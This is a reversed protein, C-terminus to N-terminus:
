AVREARELYEPGLADLLLQSLLREPQARVWGPEIVPVFARTRVSAYWHVVRTEALLVAALLTRTDARFWHESIEPGLPYFTSPPYIICDDAATDALVNQLLATGLAYRRLLAGEAFTLMREIMEQLVAHAPAAGVVANNAAAPYHREIARFWEPGRATRRLVDRVATRLYAAGWRLPSVSRRLSAPFAIREEGCFFGSAARLPELTRCTVTDLDLYVGGESALLAVRLVNARAAPAQLKRYRELLRAGGAREVVAEDHLRRMEVLPLERAARWWRASSLDDSHHLVVREFGGNKAASALAVWNLWPFAPGIWIFHASAPIM